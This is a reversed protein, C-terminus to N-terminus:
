RLCPLIRNSHNFFSRVHELFSPERGGLMLPVDTAQCSKCKIETVTPRPLNGATMSTRQRKKPASPASASPSLHLTNDEISAVTLRATPTPQVPSYKTSSAAGTIVAALDMASSTNDDTEVASRKRRAPKAVSPLSSPGAALANTEITLPEKQVAKRVRRPRSPAASPKISKM